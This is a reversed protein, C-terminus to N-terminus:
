KTSNSDKFVEYKVLNDFNIKDNIIPCLVLREIFNDSKRLSVLLYNCIEDEIFSIVIDNNQDCKELGCEKLEDITMIKRKDINVIESGKESRSVLYLEKQFLVVFVREKTNKIALINSVIKSM